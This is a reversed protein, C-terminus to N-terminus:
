LESSFCKLDNRRRVERGSSRCVRGISSDSYITLVPNYISSMFNIRNNKNERWFQLHIFSFSLECGLIKNMLYKGM